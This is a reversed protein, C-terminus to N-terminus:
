VVSKRDLAEERINPYAYGFFSVSNQDRRELIDDNVQVFLAQGVALAYSPIIQNDYALDQPSIGYQAAISDITENELVVHIM